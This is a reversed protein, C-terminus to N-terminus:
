PPRVRAVCGTQGPYSDTWVLKTVVPGFWKINLPEVVYGDLLDPLDNALLAGDLRVYGSSVPAFRTAPSGTSDALWARYSGVLGAAAARSTCLADAGSLGGLEGAMYQTSTVFARSFDKYDRPLSATQGNALTRVVPGSEQVAPGVLEVPCSTTTPNVLTVPSGDLTVTYAGILNSGVVDITAAESLKVVVPSLSDMSPRTQSNESM